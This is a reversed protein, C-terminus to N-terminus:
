EKVKLSSYEVHKEMKGYNEITLQDFKQTSQLAAALGVSNHVTAYWKPTYTTGTVTPTSLESSPNGEEDYDVWNGGVTVNLNQMELASASDSM